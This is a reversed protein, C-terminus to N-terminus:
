YLSVTTLGLTMQTLLWRTKSCDPRGHGIGSQLLLARLLFAGRVPTTHSWVRYLVGSRFPTM